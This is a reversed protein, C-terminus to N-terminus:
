LCSGRWKREEHAIGWGGGGESETMEEQLHQPQPPRGIISTSTDDVHANLAAAGSLPWLWLGQSQDVQGVVFAVEYSRALLPLSDFLCLCLRLKTVQTFLPFYMILTRIRPYTKTQNPQM